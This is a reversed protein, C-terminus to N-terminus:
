NMDELFERVYHMVQEETMARGEACAKSFAPEPFSVRVESINREFEVRDLDELPKVTFELAEVAGALRAAAELRGQRVAVGALWGLASIVGYSDQVERAIAISELFRGASQHYRGQGKLLIGLCRLYLVSIIMNQGCNEELFQELISETVQCDGYQYAIDTLFFAAFYHFSVDDIKPLYQLLQDRYSLALSLDGRKLALDGLSVLPFCAMQLNGAAMFLQLSEKFDEQQGQDVGSNRKIHGRWMLANPLVYEDKVQRALMVSEEIAQRANERDISFTWVAKRILAQALGKSDGSKRSLSVAKDLVRKAELPHNLLSELAGLVQYALARVPDLQTGHNTTRDLAKAVWDRGEQFLGSQPWFVDLEAVLRLGREAQESGATPGDLAWALGSRINELDSRVLRVTRSNEDTYFKPGEWEAIRVFYALHRDRLSNMEGSQELKELAYQRIPELLRYRPLDGAGYVVM